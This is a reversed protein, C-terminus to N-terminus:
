SYAAGRKLQQQEEQLRQETEKMSRQAKRLSFELQVINAQHKEMEQKFEKQAKELHSKFKEREREAVALRDKLPQVTGRVDQMHKALRRIDRLLEDGWQAVDVGTMNGVDLIDEVAALLPQLSCPLGEGQLLEVLADGTKRLISQVRHCADCPILSSEVTQCSVSRISDRPYYSTNSSVHNQPLRKFSSTSSWAALCHRCCDSRSSM